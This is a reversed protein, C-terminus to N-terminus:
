FLDLQTCPPVVATTTQTTVGVLSSDSEQSWRKRSVTVTKVNRVTCSARRKNQYKSVNISERGGCECEHYASGCGNCAGYMVLVGYLLPGPLRESQTLCCVSRWLYSRNIAYCSIGGELNINTFFAGPNM